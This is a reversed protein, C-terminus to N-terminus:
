LYEFNYPGLTPNTLGDSFRITFAKVGDFPLGDVVFQKADANISPGVLFDNLYM